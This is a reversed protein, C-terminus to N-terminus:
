VDSCFQCLVYSYLFTTGLALANSSAAKDAAEDTQLKQNDRTTTVGGGNDARHSTADTTQSVNVLGTFAAAAQASMTGETGDPYGIELLM